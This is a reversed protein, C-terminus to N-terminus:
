RMLFDSLSKEIACDQMCFIYFEGKRAKEPLVVDNHTKLLYENYITFSEFIKLATLNEIDQIVHDLIDMLQDRNFNPKRPKRSTSVFSKFHNCIMKCADELLLRKKYVDIEGTYILPIPIAKNLDNFHHIIDKENKTFNICLLLKIPKKLLKAASVRTWGDYIHIIKNNLWGYVLGDIFIDNKMKEAIEYVRTLDEPRNHEWKQLLESVDLFNCNYLVINDTYKVVINGFRM